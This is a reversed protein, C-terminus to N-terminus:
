SLADEFYDVRGVANNMNDAVAKRCTDVLPGPGCSVVAVSGSNPDRIFGEIIKRMDPRNGYSIAVSTSVSEISASKNALDPHCLTDASGSDIQCMRKEDSLDDTSSHMSCEATIFIKVDVIGGHELEELQEKVWNLSEAERVTWYLVVHQGSRSTRTLGLAYSMIATVGIGGAVLLVTDYRAVPYTKGYPGEVWVRIVNDNGPEKTACKLLRQTMGAQAKAVLVYSGDAKSDMVSFPHSEWFRNRMVYLFVYQGPQAKFQVSPKVVLHTANGYACIQAKTDVGALVIRVIRIVRDFAWVAIAAYTYYSFGHNALHVRLAAVFAGALIVHGVIFVEFWYHRFPYAAQVMIVTAIAIVIIGWMNANDAIMNFYYDDFGGIMFYYSTFGAGHVISQVLMMRGIWRHFLKFTEHSWATVATMINNRGGFLFLLPIMTTAMIGSRNAYFRAVQIAWAKPTPEYVFDRHVFILVVNLLVYALILLTQWRLPTTYWSIGFFKTHTIHKRGFTAPLMINKKFSAVLFGYKRNGRYLRLAIVLIFSALIPIAWFLSLINGYYESHVENSTKTHRARTDLSM